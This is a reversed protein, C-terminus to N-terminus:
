VRFLFFYLFWSYLHFKNRNGGFLRGSRSLPDDPEEPPMGSEALLLAKKEGLLPTAAAAALSRRRVVEERRRRIKDSRARLEDLSLLARRDWDGPPLVISDDMFENIASLIDRRDEAQYAVSHFAPNAMLTSISRGVEHYDLPARDAAPPGPGLLVCVFRVPLPVETVAPMHVADALRVFACAPQDLFPVAGVLVVTAEAGEPIRRMLADNHHAGDEAGAAYELESGVM